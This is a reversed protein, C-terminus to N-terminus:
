RLEFKIPITIYCAVPRDFGDKAPAFRWKYLNNVASEDLADNGSSRAVYAEEVQGKENVLVKVYTIGEINKSRASSPYSPRSSSLVRPPTAPVGRGTGEGSGQNTANSDTGNSGVVGDKVGNDVGKTQSPAATQQEETPKETVEPDHEIIDDKEVPQQQKEEKPQVVDEAKPSGLKPPAGGTLTVELIQPPRQSWTFGLAGLLLFILLHFVFAAGLAKSYRKKEENM